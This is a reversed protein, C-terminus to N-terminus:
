YSYRHLRIKDPSLCQISATSPALRTSGSRSWTCKIVLRRGTSTALANAREPRQSLLDCESVSRENDMYTTVLYRLVSWTFMTIRVKTQACPHPNSHHRIMKYDLLAVGLTQGSNRTNKCRVQHELTKEYSYHIKLYASRL